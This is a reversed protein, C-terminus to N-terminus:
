GGLGSWPYCPRCKNYVLSIVHVVQKLYLEDLVIWVQAGEEQGELEGAVRGGVLGSEELLGGAVVGGVHLPAVQAVARGGPLLDPLALLSQHGVARGLYLPLALVFEVDLHQLVPDELQLPLDLHQAPGVVAVLLGELLVVVGVV